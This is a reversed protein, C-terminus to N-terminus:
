REVIGHKDRRHQAAATDTTFTHQCGACGCPITGRRIPRMHSPLRRNQNHSDNVHKQMDGPTKFLRLCTTCIANRIREHMGDQHQWYLDGAPGRILLMRTPHEALDDPDAARLAFFGAPITPQHNM